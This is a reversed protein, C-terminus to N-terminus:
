RPGGLHPYVAELVDAQCDWCGKGGAVIAEPEVWRGCHGCKASPSAVGTAVIPPTEQCGGVDISQCNICRDTPEFITLLCSCVACRRVTM